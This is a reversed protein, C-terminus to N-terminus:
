GKREDGPLGLDDNPATGGGAVSEDRQAELPAQFEFRERALLVASSSLLVVWLVAGMPFVEESLGGEQFATLLLLVTILGRPSVWFLEQVKPARILWLIVRRSVFIVVLIFLAWLIAPWTLLSPLDVWIGLAVFFLSRVAFTFETVQAKFERAVQPFEESGMRELFYWRRQLAALNSLFLGFALVLLLPSLNLAKGTAYLLLLGAMMPVFRVHGTLRNMLLYLGIVFLVSIALSLLGGGFLNLAFGSAVGKGGLWAYFLMVGVIDALASEYTVFERAEDGLRQAAPIAVASSVIALPIALLGALYPTVDLLWVFALGFAGALFLISVVASLLARALMGFKERHIDLDLAAELVILILGLTGLFPLATDLGGRLSQTEPTFFNVVLGLALLALIAPFRYRRAAIDVAYAILLLASGVLLVQTTM